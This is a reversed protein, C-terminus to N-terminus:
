RRQFDTAEHALAETYPKTLKYSEEPGSVGPSRPHVQAANPTTFGAKSFVVSM